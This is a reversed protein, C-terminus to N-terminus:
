PHGLSPTQALVGYGDPMAPGTLACLRTGTIHKWPSPPNPINPLAEEYYPTLTIFFREFCDNRQGNTLPVYRHEGSFIVGDERVESLCVSRQCQCIGTRTEPSSFLITSPGDVVVAPRGERYYHYYPNTVLRPNEVGQARGYRVEAVVGGLAATDVILTKGEMRWTYTVEAFVGRASLKWHSVVSDGVRETSLHIAQEPAVAQDGVALYVGGDVLPRIEGERGSWKVSIDGWTGTRPTYRWFLEGDEGHYGFM